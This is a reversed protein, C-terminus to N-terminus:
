RPRPPSSLRCLVASLLCPLSGSSYRLDTKIGYFPNGKKGLLDQQLGSMELPQPPSDHIRLNGAGEVGRSKCDLNPCFTPQPDMLLKRLYLTAIGSVPQEAVISRERNKVTYQPAVVVNLCGSLFQELEELHFGYPGKGGQYLVRGETSIVYLREPWGQFVRDATNEM